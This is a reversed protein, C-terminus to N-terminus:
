NWSEPPRHPLLIIARPAPQPPGDQRLGLEEACHPCVYWGSLNVQSHLTEIKVARPIAWLVAIALAFCAAAAWERHWLLFAASPIALSTVLDRRVRDTFPPRPLKFKFRM